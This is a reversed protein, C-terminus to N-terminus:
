RLKWSVKVGLGKAERAVYDLMMLRDFSGPDLGDPLWVPAFGGKFNGELWPIVKENVHKMKRPDKRVDPDWLLILSHERFGRILYRKQFLSMSSGMTGMAMPGFGWTSSPGEVVVGTRWKIANDYNYLLMTKKMRPDSWWKPPADEAKWDLDGVYRAQWGKLKGLFHIPAVIRNKALYYHSNPCYGVGYFKGLREPNLFRGALYKNAPHEARLKDLRFHPGPLMADPSETVVEGERIRARELVGAIETLEELLDSRAETGQYCNENYCVALWLNRRGMEDRVGWRHNVFLRFKTDTCKPCCVRYYEGPNEIYLEWNGTFTNRVYRAVMSQGENSPLVKGFQRRLQRYLTPNLATSDDM